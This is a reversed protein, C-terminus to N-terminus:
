PRAVGRAPPTPVRAPVLAGIAVPEGLLYGQGLNCGLEILKGLQSPSEIGEAVVKLGLSQSLELLSRVYVTGQEPDDDLAAVLTHDLKLMDIPLRKLFAISAHGSGYDDLAVRVGWRRLANLADLAGDVADLLDGEVLEVMLSQPRVGARDLITLLQTPLEPDALQRPSLNVSVDLALGPHMRRWQSVENVAQTIVWLGLRNIIGSEEALDIFESPGVPGRQPHHWRLLAETGVLTGARLDFVPQHVLKLEDDFTARSLDVRLEHREITLQRLEPAFLAVVGKGRSKAAYMAIDADRLLTHAEDSGGRALAVGISGRVAVLTGSLDTPLSIAELMRNGILEAEDDRHLDRLLM